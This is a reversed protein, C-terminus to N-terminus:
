GAQTDSIWERMPAGGANTVAEPLDAELPRPTAKSEHPFPGVYRAEATTVPNERCNAGSHWGCGPKGEGFRWVTHGSGVDPGPEQGRVWLVRGPEM